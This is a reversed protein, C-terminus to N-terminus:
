LVPKLPRHIEEEMSVFGLSTDFTEGAHGGCCCPPSARAGRRTGSPATERRHGGFLWGGGGPESASNREGPGEPKHQSAPSQGLFSKHSHTKRSQPSIIRTKMEGESIEGEQSGVARTIGMLSLLWRRQGWTTARGRSTGLSPCFRSTSLFGPFFSAPVEFPVVSTCVRRRVQLLPAPLGPRPGPSRGGPPAPVSPAHATRGWGRGCSCHHKARGPPPQRNETRRGGPVGGEERQGRGRPTGQGQFGGKVGYRPTATM